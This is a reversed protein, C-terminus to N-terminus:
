EQYLEAQSVTVAVSYTARSYDPPLDTLVVMYAEVQGPELKANKGDSGAPNWRSALSTKTLNALQEASFVNGAPAEAKAAAV